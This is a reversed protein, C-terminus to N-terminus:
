VAPCHKTSHSLAETFMRMRRVRADAVFVREVRMEVGLGKVSAKQVNGLACELM